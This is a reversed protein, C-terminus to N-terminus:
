ECIPSNHKEDASPSSDRSAYDPETEHRCTWICCPEQVFVLALDGHVTECGVFDGFFLLGEFPALDAFRECVVTAQNKKTKAKRSQM